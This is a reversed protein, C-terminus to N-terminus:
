GALAALSVGTFDRLQRRVEDALARQVDTPAARVAEGMLSM